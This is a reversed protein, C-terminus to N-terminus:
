ARRTRGLSPILSGTAIVVAAGVLARPGPIEHWVLFGFGYSLLPTLYSFPIALSAPARRLAITLWLQGYFSFVGIGILAPIEATKPFHWDRSMLFASGVTSIITFYFIVTLPSARHKIARISIYAVAAFLASLLGMAAASTKSFDPQSEVLLYIGSFAMFTLLTLALNPRERLFLMALVAAFVPSTYNLLVSTGLPLHTIAYFYLTLAAFGSFGRLILISRIEGHGWLPIKKACIVMSTMVVGILSRIFVIEHSPHNRGLIKVCLAMLSFSVSSGLM